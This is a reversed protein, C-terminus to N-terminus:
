KRTKSNTWHHYFGSVESCLNCIAVSYEYTLNDTKVEIEFRSDTHCVSCNGLLTQCNRCFKLSNHELDSYYDEYKVKRCCKLDDSDSHM